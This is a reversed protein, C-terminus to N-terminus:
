NDVVHTKKRRNEIAFEASMRATLFSVIGTIGILFIMKTIVLYATDQIASNIMVQIRDYDVSEKKFKPSTSHFNCKNIKYGTQFTKM